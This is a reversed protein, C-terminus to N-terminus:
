RSSGEAKAEAVMREADVRSYIPPGTWAPWDSEGNIVKFGEMMILAASAYEDWVHPQVEMAFGTVNDIFDIVDGACCEKASEHRVPPLRGRVRGYPAHAPEDDV